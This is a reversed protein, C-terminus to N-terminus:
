LYLEGYNSAISAIRKKTQRIEKFTQNWVELGSERTTLEVRQDERLASGDINEFCFKEKNWKLGKEKAIERMHGHFDRTSNVRDHAAEELRKEAVINSEELCKIAHDEKVEEGRLYATFSQLNISAQALGRMTIVHGNTFLGEFQESILKQTFVFSMPDIPNGSEQASAFASEFMRQGIREYNQRQRNTYGLSATYKEFSDIGSVALFLRRTKINWFAAARMLLSQWERLHSHHLLKHSEDLLRARTSEPLEIGEPGIEIRSLEQPM